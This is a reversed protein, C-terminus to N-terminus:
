SDPLYKQVPDDLAVRGDRVMEALLLSTFVKSVSGIEYVTDGDPPRDITESVRGYGYV